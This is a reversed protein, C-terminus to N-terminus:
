IRCGSEALSFFNFNISLSELCSQCTLRGVGGRMGQIHGPLMKTVSMTLKIDLEFTLQVRRMDGAMDVNRTDCASVYRTLHHTYKSEILKINM